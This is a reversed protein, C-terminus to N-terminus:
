FDNHAQAREEVRSDEISDRAEMERVRDSAKQWDRTKLSNRIDQGGIVQWKGNWKKWRRRRGDEGERIDYVGDPIDIGDKRRVYAFARLQSGDYYVMFDVSFWEADSGRERMEEYGQVPRLGPKDNTRKVM